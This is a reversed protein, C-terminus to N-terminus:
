GFTKEIVLDTDISFLSESRDEGFIGLKSRFKRRRKIVSAEHLM